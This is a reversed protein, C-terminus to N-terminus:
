RRGKGKGKKKGGRNSNSNSAGGADARDKEGGGGGARESAEARRAEASMNAAGQAGRANVQKKRKGRYSSRERLPLWREPDPAPGPNAPDFGKPYLPKKKRKRPPAAGAGDEGRVKESRRAGRAM